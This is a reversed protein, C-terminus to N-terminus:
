KKFITRLHEVPAYKLGLTGKYYIDGGEDHKNLRMHDFRGSGNRFKWFSTENLYLM